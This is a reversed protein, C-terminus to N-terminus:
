GCHYGIEAVCSDVEEKENFAEKIYPTREEIIERAREESYHWSSNVLGVVLYEIYEDITNYNWDNGM